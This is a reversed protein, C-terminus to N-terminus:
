GGPPPAQDHSEDAPGGAKDFAVVTGLWPAGFCLAGALGYGVAAQANPRMHTLKNWLELSMATNDGTWYWGHMLGTLSLLAAM